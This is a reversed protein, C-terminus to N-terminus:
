GDFAGGQLSIAARTGFGDASGGAASDDEQQRGADSAPSVAQVVVSLSARGVVAGGSLVEGEVLALGTGPLPGPGLGRVRYRADLMEASRGPIRPLWRYDADGSGAGGVYYAGAQITGPQALQEFHALGAEAASLAQARVNRAAATGAEQTGIVVATSGIVAVVVAVLLVVVLTFGRDSRM